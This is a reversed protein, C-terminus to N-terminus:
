CSVPFDLPIDTPRVIDGNCSDTTQGSCNPGDSHYLQRWAAAQSLVLLLYAATTPPPVVDSM